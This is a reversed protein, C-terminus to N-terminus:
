CVADTNIALQLRGSTHVKEPDDNNLAYIATEWIYLLTVCHSLSYPRFQHPRNNCPVTEVPMM